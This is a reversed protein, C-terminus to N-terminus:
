LNSAMRDFPDAYRDLDSRVTDFLGSPLAGAHLMTDFIGPLKAFRNRGDPKGDATTLLCSHSIGLRM